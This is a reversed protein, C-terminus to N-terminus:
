KYRPYIHFVDPRQAAAFLLFVFGGFVKFHLNPENDRGLKQVGKHCKLYIGKQLSKGRRM